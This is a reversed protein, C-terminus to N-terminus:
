WLFCRTNFINRATVTDFFTNILEMNWQKEPTILLDSITISPWELHHHTSPLIRAVNSIWPHDWVPIHEGTGISWQFGRRIVDKASWISRWVYSPNHGISAGFYDSRPFYKAKLLRTILSELSSVLKWAHKGVMAMNFAKLGKVGMGGFVKPVSLREWSLWHLGRSNASNHGWWFFNLMKEIENIISGPLLFISMVYSPISQLVSKILVERGAQSLCRSSWSNIKNWIRDKVFKFTAHKSHGIMSPLGLYKCTGLVQRVGLTTAILNKLDDLTNRSCFLKSKQLNIAQGLAEEYTTVRVLELSFFVITQLSFTPFLQHMQAYRLVELIIAVNLKVFLPPSDKLVFSLYILHSLIERVSAADQFLLVWQHEM